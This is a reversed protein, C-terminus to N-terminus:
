DTSITTGDIEMEDTVDIVPVPKPDNSNNNKGQRNINRLRFKVAGETRNIYGSAHLASHADLVTQTVLPNKGDWFNLLIADEEPLWLGHRIAKGRKNPGEAIESVLSESTKVSPAQTVSRKRKTPTSLVVEEKGQQKFAKNAKKAAQRLAPQPVYTASKSMSTTVSSTLISSTGGRSAKPEEETETESVCDVYVVEPKSTKMGRRTEPNHTKSRRNVVTKTPRNDFVQVPPGCVDKPSCTAPLLTFITGLENTQSIKTPGIVASQKGSPRGRRGKASKDEDAASSNLQSKSPIGATKDAPCSTKPKRIYTRKQKVPSSVPTESGKNNSGTKAVEPDLVSNKSLRSSNKNSPRRPSSKNGSSEYEGDAEKGEEAEAYLEELEVMEQAVGAVAHDEDSKIPNASNSSNSHERTVFDLVKRKDDKSKENQQLPTAEADANPEAAPNNNSFISIPPSPIVKPIHYQEQRDYRTDREHVCPQHGSNLQENSTPNPSREHTNLAPDLHDLNVTNPPPSRHHIPSLSRPTHFPFTINIPSSATSDSSDSLSSSIPFEFDRATNQTKLVPTTPPSSYSCEISYHEKRIDHNRKIDRLYVDEGDEVLHNASLHILHTEHATVSAPTQLEPSTPTSLRASVTMGVRNEVTRSLEINIPPLLPIDHYRSSNNSTQTNKASTNKITKDPPANYPESIFTRMETLAKEATTESVASTSSLFATLNNDQKHISLNDLLDKSATPEKTTIIRARTSPTLLTNKISIEATSVITNQESLSSQTKRAESSSEPETGAGVSSVSSSSITPPVIDLQGCHKRREAMRHHIDDIEEQDYGNNQAPDLSEIEYQWDQVNFPNQPLLHNRNSRSSVQPIDWNKM